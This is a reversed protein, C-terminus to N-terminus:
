GFQLPKSAAPGASLVGRPSQVEMSALVISHVKLLLDVEQRPVSLFKAIQEPTEGRRHLRLVQSRTTLNMGPRPMGPTMTVAPQQGLERMEAKLQEMSAEAGRLATATQSQLDDTRRNATQVLAKAYLLAFWSAGVAALALACLIALAIAVSSLDVPPPFEM